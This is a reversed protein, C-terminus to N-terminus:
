MLTQSGPPPTPPERNTIGLARLVAVARQTGATVSRKTTGDGLDIDVVRVSKLASLAETASLDLRAAKLKKEIARHILFALAAVFIHAAVRPDTRHYIPRMDIVDKLNAFAREVDTLDKYLRVADFASLNAEETQIVYKGEYAQERTFHVPHEFFRFVGDECSWGFYRHGHNRGLIRAAAAGIKDPAKLRGKIVRQRLKELSARVREMAKSREAREYAQREDSHVVFVRVAPQNSPVEQVLTKPPSTKERATIGVPCEIWPGTASQIYDFVEGSRRRNRGVIYGHGHQRLDDLNQSTVMGRDGVFVIRRLGFREELDRLVQPVTKADRWNGAFVHHAIPWGDIMVLGVLVQRHRPKGDRSHGHAGLEPPGEGEFYTSTLDYFVMDVRLSFLDRLTVFLAHEIAAKHALLHDLSRYWQQLQRAEVRVRPMRSAKREGDDRWAPVFRRGDRDCVFDTELWRALGHESSPAALRNAVLVVVRDSLSAGRRRRDGALRDLTAELGLEVWLHRAALMPGFDSAALAHVDERRIARQPEAEGHLLRMLKGLDLHAALLDKRGLNLVTRHRTKGNQRYAEVVRVYEHKVGQGGAARVIRLFM